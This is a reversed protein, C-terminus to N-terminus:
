LKRSYLTWAESPKNRYKELDVEFLEPISKYDVSGKKVVKAYRYNNSICSIGESLERLKEELLEKQLSYNKIVEKVKFLDNAIADWTDGKEIYDDETLPPPTFSSICGWFAALKQKLMDQYQDDKRVEVLVGEGSNYSFYHMMDHGLCLLQHQLQPMYVEPIIGKKALEHDERNICKIEVALKKDITLGDLSAMMYSIDNHFIVEPAVLDGTMAEYASRAQAEMNTGHDTASSQSNAEVLGLKEQWLIYPTKIRGDRLKWKALGLIVPSDSAGIYNNRMKLWELTGQTLQNNM